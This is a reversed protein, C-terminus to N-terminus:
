RQNAVDDVATAAESSEGAPSPEQLPEPSVAVVDIPAREAGGAGVAAGADEVDTGPASEEAAAHRGAAATQKPPNTPQSVTTNAAQAFAPATFAQTSTAAPTVPASPTPPAEPRGSEKTSDAHGEQGTAVPYPRPSTVSINGGSGSPSRFAPVSSTGSTAPVAQRHATANPLPVKERAADYQGPVAARMAAVNSAVNDVHFGVETALAGLAAVIVGIQFKKTIELAAFHCAPLGGPIIWAEAALCSFNYAYIAWAVPICGVLGLKTYGFQQRVNFVLEAETKVYGQLQKDASQVAQVCEQIKRNLEGYALAAKGSWHLEDPSALKLNALAADFNPRATDTLVTGKDPKGIGNLMELLVMMAIANELYATPKQDLMGKVADSGFEKLSEQLVLQFIAGTNASMGAVDNDMAYNKWAGVSTATLKVILAVFSASPM